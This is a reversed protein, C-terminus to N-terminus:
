VGVRSKRQVKRLWAAYWEKFCYHDSDQDCQAQIKAHTGRKTLEFTHVLKRRSQVGM